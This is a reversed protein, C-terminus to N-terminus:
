RALAREKLRKIQQLCRVAHLEAREAKALEGAQRYRMAREAWVDCRANIRVQEAALKELSTPSNRMVAHTQCGSSM